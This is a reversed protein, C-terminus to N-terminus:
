ELQSKETIINNLFYKLYIDVTNDEAISGFTIIGMNSDFNRIYQTYYLDADMESTTGDENKSSITETLRLKMLVGNYEDMKASVLEYSKYDGSNEIDRKFSDICYQLLEDDEYEVSPRFSFSMFQRYGETGEEDFCINSLVEETLSDESFDFYNDSGASEKTVEEIGSTDTEAMVWSGGPIPYTINLYDDFYYSILDSNLENENSNKMAVVSKVMLIMFVIFAIILLSSFFYNVITEKRIVIYDDNNEINNSM